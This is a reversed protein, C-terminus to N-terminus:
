VVSKRDLDVDADGEIAWLGDMVRGSVGGVAGAGVAVGDLVELGELCVVDGGGDEGDDVGSVGSVLAVVEVPECREVDGGSEVRAEVAGTGAVVVPVGIEGEESVEEHRGQVVGVGEAELGEVPEELREDVARWRLFAGEGSLASLMEDGEGWVVAECGAASEGVIAAGAGVPCRGGDGCLEGAEAVGEFALGCLLAQGGVAVGAGDQLAAVAAAGGDASCFVSMVFEAALEPVEDGIEGVVAQAQEPLAELVLAAAGGVEDVVELFRHGCM